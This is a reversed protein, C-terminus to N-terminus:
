LNVFSIAFGVAGTVLEGVIAFLFQMAGQYNTGDRKPRVSFLARVSFLEHPAPVGALKGKVKGQRTDWGQTRPLPPSRFGDSLGSGTDEQRTM